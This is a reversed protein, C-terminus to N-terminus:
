PEEGSTPAAATGAPAQLRFRWPDISYKRIKYGIIRETTNLLRAAGAISGRSSQMADLILDKEFQEVAGGLSTQIPIGSVLSSQLSPPLHHGHIAEGDCALVAHEITNELERVNGPWHHGLLLDMAPASIRSVPKGYHQSHRAIFHDILLSIDSRRDRLPPLFIPVVSLRYYLDARFAGAAVRGQLNRSTAAIVRVDTRHTGIGGVREFERDQLARLLRAQTVGNLQDVDDLFLTGGEAMELRGCRAIAANEEQGFLVSEAATAPLTALSVKVIPRTARASNYHLTQAILEKGSGPEGHILVTADTPATQAIEECVQRMPGSKGVVGSFDYREQLLMRLGRNEDMLRRRSKGISRRAKLAQGIMSAVVAFFRQAAEEDRSPHDDVEVALAGAPRRDVPIPVCIFTEGSRRDRDRELFLPERDIAPVVVAHGSEIVQGTIGEGLRCRAQRAEARFGVSVEVRIEGTQEDLMMVAGRVISRDRELSELVRGLAQPPELESGLAQGIDLLSAVPDQADGLEADSGGPRFADDPFRRSM